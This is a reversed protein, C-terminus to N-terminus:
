SNHSMTGYEHGEVGSLLERDYEIWFKELPNWFFARSFKFRRGGARCWTGKDASRKAIACARFKVAM